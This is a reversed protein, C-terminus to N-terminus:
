NLLYFLLSAGAHVDIQKRSHIQVLLPIFIPSKPFIAVRAEIPRGALATLFAMAPRAEAVEAVLVAPAALPPVGGGGGGGPAGPAPPLAALLALVM